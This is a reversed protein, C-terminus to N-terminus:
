ISRGSTSCQWHRPAAQLQSSRAACTSTKWCCASPRVCSRMTMSWWNCATWQSTGLFDHFWNNEITVGKMESFRMGDGQIHHLDNDRITVNQSRGLGVGHFFNSVENGEFTFGKTDIVSVASQAVKGGNNVYATALGKFESDSITIDSSKRIIVDTQNKAAAGTFEFRLHDFTVKNAGNLELKTIVARDNPDLSTVLVNDAHAKMSKIVAKYEVDGRLLFTEGGKAKTLATELEKSSNIVIGKVTSSPSTGSSAPLKAAAPAEAVETVTVTVPVKVRAGQDDSLTYEVVAKGVWDKGPTFVIENGPSLTVIGKGSALRAATVTLVDGDVDSDNSTIDALKIRLTTDEATTYADAGGKPASNKIVDISVPVTAKAGHVDEVTYNVVAKGSWDKTPTFVIEKGGVLEVTGKGQALRVGTVTMADDNADSDNKLLDAVQMRVADDEQTKYTDAGGVPAKNSPGQGKGAISVNDVHGRFGGAWASGVMPDWYEAAKTAATVKISGIAKGDVFGTMKGADADYSLKVNHWDTDTAKVGRATITGKEGKANGLLRFVVDGNGNVDIQISNHIRFLSGGEGPKAAKFDLSFDIQRQAFFDPDRALEIHNGGKNAHLGNLLYAGGHVDAGNGHTLKTNNGSVDGLSNTFDARFSAAM